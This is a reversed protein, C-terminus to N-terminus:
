IPYFIFRPLNPQKRRVKTTVSESQKEKGSEPPKNEVSEYM